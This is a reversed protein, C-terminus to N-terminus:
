SRVEFIMNFPTETARRFRRFGAETAVQRLRSEGAQAGLGQPDEQDVASVRQTTPDGVPRGTGFMEEIDDGAVHRRERVEGRVEHVPETIAGVERLDRNGIQALLEDGTPDIAVIETIEQEPLGM